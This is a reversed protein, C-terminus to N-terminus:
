WQVEPPKWGPPKIPKGGDPNPEKAMNARHVADFAEGAEKGFVVFTGFGVYLLDASELLCKAAQKRVEETKAGNELLGALQELEDASEKAEERHMKARFRLVEPMPMSVTAPAPHGFKRHFDKVDSQFYRAAAAVRALLVNGGTAMKVAREGNVKEWIVETKGGQFDNRYLVDFGSGEPNKEVFFEM